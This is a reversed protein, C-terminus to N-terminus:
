EEVISIIIGNSEFDTGIASSIGIASMASTAEAETSYSKKNSQNAFGGGGDYYSDVTGIESVWATPVKTLKVYFAM